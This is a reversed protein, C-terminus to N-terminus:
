QHNHIVLLTSPVPDAGEALAALVRFGQARFGMEGAGLKDKWIPKQEILLDEQRLRGLTPILTHGRWKFLELLKFL